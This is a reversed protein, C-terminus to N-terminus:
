RVPAIGPLPEGSACCLALAERYLAAAASRDGQATKVEALGTIAFVYDPFADLMTHPYTRTSELAISDPKPEALTIPM